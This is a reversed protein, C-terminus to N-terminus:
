YAFYCYVNTWQGQPKRSHAYYINDLGEILHNLFQCGLPTLPKSLGALMHLMTCTLFICLKVQKVTDHVYVLWSAYEEGRGSQCTIMDTSRQDQVGEPARLTRKSGKGALNSSMNHDQGM